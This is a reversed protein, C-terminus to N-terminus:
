EKFGKAKVSLWVMRGDESWEADPRKDAWLLECLTKLYVADAAAGTGLAIYNHGHGDGDCVIHIM